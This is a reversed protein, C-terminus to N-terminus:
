ANANATFTRAVAIAGLALDAFGRNKVEFVGLGIRRVGWRATHDMGARLEGGRAIEEGPGYLLSAIIVLLGSFRGWHAVANSQDQRAAPRPKQSQSLFRAGAM